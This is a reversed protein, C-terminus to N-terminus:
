QKLINRCVMLAKGLLNKGRWKNPDLHKENSVSLGIGWIRDFPSAEVLITDNSILLDKLEENQSFKLYNGEIVIFYKNKDWVEGDFDKVKRGLLRIEKPDITKLIEKAIKKDNFLIAKSWMMWQEANKFKVKGKKFDSPYWQSFEGNPQTPKWFYTYESM